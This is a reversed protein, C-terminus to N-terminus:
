AYCRWWMAVSLNYCADFSIALALFGGSLPYIICCSPATEM